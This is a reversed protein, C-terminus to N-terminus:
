KLAERAVLAAQQCKDCCSNRAISGLAERLRANEAEAALLRSHEVVHILQSQWLLDGQNPHKNFADYQRIDCDESDPDENPDIWWERGPEAPKPELLDAIEANSERLIRDCTEASLPASRNHPCKGIFETKECLQCRTDSM